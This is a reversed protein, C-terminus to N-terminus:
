ALIAEPLNVPLLKPIESLGVGVCHHQKTTFDLIGELRQYLVEVGSSDKAYPSFGPMLSTSHLMLVLHNVGDRLSSDTLGKLEAM